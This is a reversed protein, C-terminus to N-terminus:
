TPPNQDQRPDIDRPWQVKFPTIRSCRRTAGCTRPVAVRLARSPHRSARFSLLGEADLAQCDSNTLARAVGKCLRFSAECQRRSRLSRCCHLSLSSCSALAKPSHPDHALRRTRARRDVARCSQAIAYLRNNLTGAKAQHRLEDLLDAAGHVSRIRYPRANDRPPAASIGRRSKKM